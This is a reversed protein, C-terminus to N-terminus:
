EGTQENLVTAVGSVMAHPRLNAVRGIILKEMEKSATKKSAQEVLVRAYEPDFLATDLIETVSATHYKEGLKIIWRFVNVGRNLINVNMKDSLKTMTDSGVGGPSKTNRSFVEYAEQITKLAKYKQPENRYLVKMVGDYKTIFTQLANNKLTPNGAIDTATSKVTEVFHKAFANQLGRTAAPDKDLLKLLNATKKAPSNGSLITKVVNQPDSGIINNAVTNAYDDAYQAQAEAIKNAKAVSNFEKEIGLKELLRKNKQFWAKYVKTSIKGSVDRKQFLDFKAYDKMIRGTDNGIAAQVDEAVGGLKDNWIKGPVREPRIRTMEGNSGRKLIDGVGRHRFVEVYDKRYYRNAEKLAGINGSATKEAATLADQIADIALGLRRELAPTGKAKDSRMTELLVTKLSRLNNLSIVKDPVIIEEIGEENVIKKPSYKKIVRKVVGPIAEDSEYAGIKKVAASFDSLMDTIDIKMDGISDYLVKAKARASGKAKKLATILADGTMHPDVADLENVIRAAETDAIKSAQEASVKINRVGDILDDVGEKGGFNTAYYERLAENNQQINEVIEQAKEPNSSVRSQELRIRKPDHAAQGPTFKLGPITSEIKQAEEVNRAYIPGKSTYAILRNGASLERGAKTFVGKGVDAVKKFVFKGGRFVGVMGAGIGHGLLEMELGTKAESQMEKLEQVVSKGDGIGLLDDFGEAANKGAIYGGTGGALSGIPGGVSGAVAGVAAGTGELVPTYISSATEKWSSGPKPPQIEIPETAVSDFPNGDVPVLSAGDKEFPNNDVKVLSAM